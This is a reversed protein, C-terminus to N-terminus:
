RLQLSNRDYISQKLREKQEITKLM